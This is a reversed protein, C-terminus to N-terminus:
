LAFKVKLFTARLKIASSPDTKIRDQMLKTFDDVANWAYSIDGIIQLKVLIDDNINSIYAM